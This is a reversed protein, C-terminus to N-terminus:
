PEGLATAFLDAVSIRLPPIGESPEWTLDTSVIEPRDDNVRWRELVRADPDLIWYEPIGARQYRRRKLTRDARATSPSLVEITLLLTRVEKWSRHPVGAAPIVFVDPQVLTDESLEIDAPSLVVRAVPSGRLHVTLLFHMEGVVLQHRETPAPSVLLEGDIAEYRNGDAPLAIVEDATWHRTAVAMGM